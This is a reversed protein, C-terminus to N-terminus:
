KYLKRTRRSLGSQGNYRALVKKMGTICEAFVLQQGAMTRAPGALLAAAAPPALATRLTSFNSSSSSSLPRSVLIYSLSPSDQITNHPPKTRLSLASPRCPQHACRVRSSSYQAPVSTLRTPTIILQRRCPGFRGGAARVHPWSKDVSQRTWSSWCASSSSSAATVRVDCWSAGTGGERGGRWDRLWAGTDM